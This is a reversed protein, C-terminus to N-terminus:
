NRRIKGSETVEIQEVFKLMVPVKYSELHQKCYNLIDSKPNANQKAQPSLVVEACVLAGMIPSSKGFVRVEQVLMSDLLCKEVEEPQVKNGGVNIAGSDRGLFYVRDGEIQVKDGTNIYGDADFMVDNGRYKQSRIKPRMWMINEADIKIELENVGNDLYSRPFGAVGDTVSFGVGVETSAYIHRLKAKPFKEQLAKLINADVIEGGLTINKLPLQEVMKTMLMKRWFSPTGSLTNCGHRVLVTVIQQMDEDADCVVLTSGSLLSQLYVQIGSFRYIDFVLGWIYKEGLDIDRKATKALSALTHIVLKPKKTTGSTPVIWETLLANEDNCVGVSHEIIKECVLSDNDLLVEYECGVERIYQMRLKENIDRPLFLIQSAVGDLLPLLLSFEFRSRANVVVSKNKLVLLAQKNTSALSKLDGYSVRSNKSVLAVRSNPVAQITQLLNDSPTEKMEM